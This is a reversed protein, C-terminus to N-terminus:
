GHDIPRSVDPPTWGKLEELCRAIRDVSSGNLFGFLRHWAAENDAPIPGFDPPIEHYLAPPPLGQAARLDRVHLYIAMMERNATRLRVHYNLLDHAHNPGGAVAAHLELSGMTALGNARTKAEALAQEARELETM